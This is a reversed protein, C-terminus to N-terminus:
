ELKQTNAIKLMEKFIKRIRKGKGERQRLQIWVHCLLMHVEIQGRSEDIQHALAKDINSLVM